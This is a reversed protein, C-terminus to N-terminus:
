GQSAAARLGCGEVLQVDGVQCLQPVNTLKCVCRHRGIQEQLAPVSCAMCRAHCLGQKGM